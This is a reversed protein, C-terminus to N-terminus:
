VFHKHSLPSPVRGETQNVLQDTNLDAQNEEKKTM